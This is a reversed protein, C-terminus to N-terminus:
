THTTKLLAKQLEYTEYKLMNLLESPEFGSLFQIPSQTPLSPPPYELPLKRQIQVKSCSLQLNLVADILNM